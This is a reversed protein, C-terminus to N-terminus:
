TYFLGILFFLLFPLKYAFTNIGFINFSLACMWFPFHPKDLWAEGQVYLDAYNGSEVLSKSITAYLASDGTFVENFLGTANVAVLAISLLIFVNKSM